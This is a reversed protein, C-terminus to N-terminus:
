WQQGFMLGYLSNVTTQVCAPVRMTEFIARADAESVPTGDFEITVVASMPKRALDADPIGTPVDGYRLRTKYESEVDYGVTTEDLYWVTASQGDVTVPALEAYTVQETREGNADSITTEYDWTTWPQGDYNAPENGIYSDDAIQFYVTTGGVDFRYDVAAGVIGSGASGSGVVEWSAPVAFSFVTDAFEPDECRSPMAKWGDPVTVPGTLLYAPPTVDFSGDGGGGDGGGGDGGGDGGGGDGGGDTMGGPLTPTAGDSEDANGGDDGGCSVASVAFVASCAIFLVSRRLKM